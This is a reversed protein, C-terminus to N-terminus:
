EANLSDLTKLLEIMEAKTGSSILDRTECVAILEKKSLNSYDAKVAETEELETYSEEFDEKTEIWYVTCGGVRKPPANSVVYEGAEAQHIVGLADTFARGSSGAQEALVYMELKYKKM